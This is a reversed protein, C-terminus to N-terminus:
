CTTARTTNDLCAVFAETGVILVREYVRISMMHDSFCTTVCMFCMSVAHQARDFAPVGAAINVMEMVDYSGHKCLGILM